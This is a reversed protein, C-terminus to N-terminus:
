FDNALQYFALGKTGRVSPKLSRVCLRIKGVRAAGERGLRFTAAGATASSDWRPRREIAKPMSRVSNSPGFLNKPAPCVPFLFPGGDILLLGFVHTRWVVFHKSMPQIAM